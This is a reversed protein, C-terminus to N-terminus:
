SASVVRRLIEVVKTHGWGEAVEIATNDNGDTRNADAGLNLLLEVTETHGNCVAEHLPTSGYDTTLNIDSGRELLLRIIANRGRSAAFHLPTYGGSHPEVDVLFSPTWIRADRTAGASLLLEAIQTRGHEAAIMLPTVGNMVTADVDTGAHLLSAVTQVDGEKVADHLSKMSKAPLLRLMQRTM